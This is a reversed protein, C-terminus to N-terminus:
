SKGLNAEFWSGGMEVESATPNVPLLWWAWGTNKNKNRIKSNNNNRKATSPNSSLTEYNSPLRKVV